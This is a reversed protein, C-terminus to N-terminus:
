RSQIAYCFKKIDGHITFSLNKLLNGVDKDQETVTVLSSTIALRLRKRHYHFESVIKVVENANTDILLRRTVRMNQNEISRPPSYSVLCM